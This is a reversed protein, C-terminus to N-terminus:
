ARRRRNVAAGIALLGLALTAYTAPEPVPAMDYALTTIQGFGGTGSMELYAIGSGLTITAFADTLGGLVSGGAVLSGGSDYSRIQTDYGTISWITAVVNDSLRDFTITTSTLEFTPFLSLGEQDVTDRSDRYWYFSGLTLGFDSWADSAVLDCCTVGLSEEDTFAVTTAHAPLAAFALAAAAALLSISRNM